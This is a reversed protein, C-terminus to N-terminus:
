RRIGPGGFLSVGPLKHAGKATGDPNKPQIIKPLRPSKTGSKGPTGTYTKKNRDPNAIHPNPLSAINGATTAGPTAFEKLRM